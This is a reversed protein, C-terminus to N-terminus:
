LEDQTYVMSGPRTKKTSNCICINCKKRDEVTM